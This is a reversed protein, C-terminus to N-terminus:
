GSVKQECDDELSLLLDDDVIWFDIRLVRVNQLDSLRNHLERHNNGRFIQTGQDLDAVFVASFLDVDAVDAIISNANLIEHRQALDDTVKIGLDLLCGRSVGPSGRERRKKRRVDFRMM